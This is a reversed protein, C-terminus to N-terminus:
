PSRSPLPPAPVEDGYRDISFGNVTGEFTDFIIHIEDYGVFPSVGRMTPCKVQMLVRFGTGDRYFTKPCNYAIFGEIALQNLAAIGMPSMLLRDVFDQSARDDLPQWPRESVGQARDPFPDAPPTAAIAGPSAVLGIAIAALWGPCRGVWRLRPWPSRPTM